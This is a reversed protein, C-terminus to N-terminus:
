PTRHFCSDHYLQRNETPHHRKDNFYYLIICNTNKNCKISLFHVCVYIIITTNLINSIIVGLVHHKLLQFINNKHFVRTMEVKSHITEVIFYCCGFYVQVYYQLNDIFFGM